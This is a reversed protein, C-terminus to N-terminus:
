EEAASAAADEEAAARETEIEKQFDALEQEVEKKSEKLANIEDNREEIKAERDKIENQMDQKEQAIRARENKLKLREQAMAVRQATMNRVGTEVQSKVQQIQKKKDALIQAHRSRAEQFGSLRLTFDDEWSNSHKKVIDGDISEMFDVDQLDNTSIQRNQRLVASPVRARIGVANSEQDNMSTRQMVVLADGNPLRHAVRMKINKLIVPNNKGGDLNPLAKLLTEELRKAETVPNDEGETKPSGADNKTDGGDEASNQVSEPLRHSAVAIDLYEDVFGKPVETMLVNRPDDLRYLSGTVFGEKVRELHTTKEEVYIKPPKAPREIPRSRVVMEGEQKVGVKRQSVAVIGSKCGFLPLIAIALILFALRELFFSSM